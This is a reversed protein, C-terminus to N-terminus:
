IGRLGIVAFTTGAHPGGADKRSMTIGSIASLIRYSTTLKPGSFLIDGFLVQETGPFHGTHLSSESFCADIVIGSATSTFQQSIEFDPHLTNLVNSGKDSMVPNVTDVGIFVTSIGSMLNISENFTVKVTGTLVDVSEVPDALAFMFVNPFGKGGATVAQSILDMNKITSGSFTASQVRARGSDLASVIVVLAVDNIITGNIFHSWTIENAKRIITGTTTTHLTVM